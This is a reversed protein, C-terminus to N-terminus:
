QTLKIFEERSITGEAYKAYADMRSNNGASGPAAKEAKLLGNDELFKRKKEEALRDIRQEETEKPATQPEPQGKPTISALVKDAEDFQGHVALDKIKWYTVDAETLGVAETKTEYDYIRQQTQTLAQKAQTETEIKKFRQTLDPVKKPEGFTDPQKGLEAIYEALVDFKSELAKIEGSRDVNKLIKDKETLKAHASSLGKKTNELETVLRTKEAELAALKTELSEPQAEPTATQEATQKAEEAM